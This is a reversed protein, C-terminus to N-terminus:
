REAGTEVAPSGDARTERAAYRQAPCVERVRENVSIKGTPRRSLSESPRIM